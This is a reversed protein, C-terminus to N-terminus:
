IGAPQIWQGNITNSAPDLRGRFEGAGNPLSFSLRDGNHQVSAQFGAIAAHWQAHRADITLIGRVLPGFPQEVGWLGVLPNGRTTAQHYLVSPSAVLLAILFPLFQM